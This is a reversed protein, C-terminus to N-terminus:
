RALSDETLDTESGSRGSRIRFPFVWWCGPPPNIDLRWSTQTHLSPMLEVPQWRILRWWRSISVLQTSSVSTAVEKGLPFM